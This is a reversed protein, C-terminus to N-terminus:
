ERRADRICSILVAANSPLLTATTRNPTPADDRATPSPSCRNTQVFGIAAQIDVRELGNRV